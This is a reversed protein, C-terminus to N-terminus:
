DHGWQALLAELHDRPPKLDAVTRLATMAAVFEPRHKWRVL